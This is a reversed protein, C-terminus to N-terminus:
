QIVYFPVNSTLIGGPTTVTVHGTTAGTPVTAEIFTDSVVTFNAPVGNLMVSSAGTFGQGLIGATQGVKGGSRVFAVFPGLGNSLSFLTGYPAQGDYNGYTTGYFNGNTAQLLGGFPGFGDACNALACFDYLTTLKGAPTIEFVTGYFGVGGQYTTGYFNGDTGEILPGNPYAGDSCNSRSCFNYLTTLKGASTIKFVTGCGDCNPNNGSGGGDTVGYFEGNAAQILGGIPYFGDTGEFSYLTTVEGKPTIGFITGGNYTGGTETEGYLNGNTAQILSGNAYDGDL